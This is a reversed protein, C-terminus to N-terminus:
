LPMVELWFVVLEPVVLATEGDEFSTYRYAPIATTTIAITPNLAAKRALLRLFYFRVKFEVSARRTSLTGFLFMPTEPKRTRRPIMDIARIM